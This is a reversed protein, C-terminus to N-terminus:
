IGIHLNYRVSDVRRATKQRRMSTTGRVDDKIAPRDRRLSPNWELDSMAVGATFLTAIPLTDKRTNESEGTLIMGGNSWVWEVM